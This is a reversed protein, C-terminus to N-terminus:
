SQNAKTEVRKTLKGILIFDGKNLKSATIVHKLVFLM